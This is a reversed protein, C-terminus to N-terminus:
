ESEVEIAHLAAMACAKDEEESAGSVGIAGVYAGAAQIPVGGGFMVLRERQLLGQRVAPSLQEAVEAWRDTPLRFSLASYAKDQAIESCHFPAQHDRLFALLRGSGDVVAVAIHAQMEQAARMAAVCAQQASQWDISATNVLRM